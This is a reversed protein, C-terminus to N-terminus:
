GVIDSDPTHDRLIGIVDQRSKRRNMTQAIELIEVLGSNTKHRGESIVALCREFKKFDERKATRLPHSRFFPIVVDLLDRRRSVNNIFTKPTTTKGRIATSM